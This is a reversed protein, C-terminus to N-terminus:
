KPRWYTGAFPGRGKSSSAVAEGAPESEGEEGEETESGEGLEERDEAVQEYVDAAEQETEIAKQEEPPLSEFLQFEEDLLDDEPQALGDDDEEDM